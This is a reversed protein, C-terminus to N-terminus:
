WGHPDGEEGKAIELAPRGSTGSRPAPERLDAGGGERHDSAPPLQLADDLDRVRGTDVEREAERVEREVRPVLSVALKTPSATVNGTLRPELVAFLISAFGLFALAGTLAPARDLLVSLTTLVLFVAACGALWPNPKEM